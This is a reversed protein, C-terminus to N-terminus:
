SGEQQIFMNNSKEFGVTTEPGHGPALVTEDPLTYIREKISGALQNANGGPLDTRGVSSRFILDGTICFKESPFNLAISGPCHGPVDLVEATSGAVELIEGNKLTRDLSAPRYELNEMMFSSVTDPNELFFETDRHGWLPIGADRFMCADMIHDWHGHTLICARIKINEEKARATILDFSHDPADILYGEGTERNVALYANTSIIGCTVARFTV